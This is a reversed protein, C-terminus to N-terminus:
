RASSKKLKRCIHVRMPCKCLHAEGFSLVFRCSQPESELCEVYDSLGFDQARCLGKSESKLCEFDKPCAMQEMIREVTNEVEKDM